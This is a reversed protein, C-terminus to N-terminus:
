RSTLQGYPVAVRLMPAFRQVYLGNQLRLPRFEEESLEGALYRRTQDRFQKVRDEIIRQDYEDYVYM